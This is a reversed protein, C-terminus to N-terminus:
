WAKAIKDLESRGLDEPTMAIRFTCKADFSLYWPEALAPIESADKMDVVLVAGRQGGQETFYVAQPKIAALIKQLTAGASGERVLKNFPSNPITVTILMRM